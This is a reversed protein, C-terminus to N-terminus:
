PTLFEQLLQEYQSMIPSLSFDMARVKLIHSPIPHTLTTLIAESLALPNQIPVLQGYKGQELIEAPGSECDTSIVPTGVAMAEVLVNGFGEWISCLVFIDSNKMYTYPNEQHNALCVDEQLNLQRILNELQPRDEGEGIILLRADLNSKLLRFAKILTFFDKQQTLRGAGLIVPKNKNNLWPHPPSEAARQFVHSTIVPNYIVRLREPPQQIVTAIERVLGQSIVVIQDALPFFIRAFLPLIRVFWRFDHKLIGLPNHQTIILSFKVGSLPRAIAAAINIHQDACLLLNPKTTKLYKRLNNLVNIPNRTNLDFLKVDPSLDILYQGKIEPMILDVRYGLNTLGNAINVMIRQIGADSAFFLGIRTKM